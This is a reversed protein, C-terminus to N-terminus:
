RLKRLCFDLGIAAVWTGAISLCVAVAFRAFAKLVPSLDANRLHVVTAIVLVSCCELAVLGWLYFLGWHEAAAVRAAESPLGYLASYITASRFYGIACVAALVVTTVGLWVRIPTRMQLVTNIPM